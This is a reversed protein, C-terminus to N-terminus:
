TQYTGRGSLLNQTITLGLLTNYITKEHPLFVLTRGMRSRPVLSYQLRYCPGQCPRYSFFYVLLGYGPGQGPGPNAGASSKHFLVQKGRTTEETGAYVAESPRRSTSGSCYKYGSMDDREGCKESELYTHRGSAMRKRHRKPTAWRAM